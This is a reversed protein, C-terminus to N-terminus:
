RRDLQSVRVDLLAGVSADPQPQFRVTIREKGRTLREPLPYEYDFLEGPHIQLTQTAVKEGDVLIDFARLRGESGRFTCVLTVPKDPAVKLEYGFWGDPSAARWRRGEFFGVNTNSGKFGHDRESESDGIRVVDVTRREIEKRRTEAAAIDARRKEWEVSSFVKWYVTYRSDFTKYFPLLTVDRPQGIGTTQFTLPAGPVAKARALIDTLECVFAPAEVPKVRGLQPASPGYRRDSDLGEKGLDGALVIPGYLLAVIRPDDPMSEMRLSMPLRIQITDGSKWVRALTIYSGPRGRVPETRGNVAVTMGSQAWSPYRIRLALRIPGESKITLRTIEEEPFRTEQRVTLKKEKWQLESAIFLNVYLSMDDHFYITDAYQTHNEMGTGVCCWFSSDPTSFTKFAGPRLPVYYCMM